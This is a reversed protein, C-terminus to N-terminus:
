RCKKFLGKVAIVWSVTKNVLPGNLDIVVQEADMSVIIWSTNIIKWNREFVANYRQWVYLPDKAASEVVARSFWTILWRDTSGWGQKPSIILWKREALSMWLVAGEVAGVVQEKGVNFVLPIPQEYVQKEKALSVLLWDNDRLDYWLTVTDGTQVYSPLCVFDSALNARFLRETLYEEIKEIFYASKENKGFKVEMYDILDYLALMDKYEGDAIKADIWDYVKTLLSNDGAQVDYASVPMGISAVCASLLVTTLLFLKKM